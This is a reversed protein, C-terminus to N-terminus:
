QEDDVYDAGFYALKYLHKLEGVRPLRPNATTCQDGFAKYSLEDLADLYTKEDIASKPWVVNAEKISLPVGVQGMLDRVANALAKVGEQETATKTVLGLMVAIEKFRAPAM